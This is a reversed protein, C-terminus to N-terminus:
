EACVQVKCPKSCPIRSLDPQLARWRESQHVPHITTNETSVMSRPSERSAADSPLIPRCASSPSTKSLTSHCSTSILQAHMWLPLKTNTSVQFLEMKSHPLKRNTFYTIRYLVEFIKSLSKIVFSTIQEAFFPFIDKSTWTQQNAFLYLQM